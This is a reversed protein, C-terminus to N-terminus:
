NEWLRFGILEHWPALDGGTQSVVLASRSHKGGHFSILGAATRALEQQTPGPVPDKYPTLREAIFGTTFRGSGFTSDALVARLFAINNQGGFLITKALARDLLAIAAERTPAHAIVKATMPDYYVSVEDGSEIGSDIRVGPLQPWQVREVRGPAPAFGRAPDEAYVRAEIAHGNSQLEREAFSLAHGEAVRIQEEVLDLGSVMETVPHEVQLRTNMELFYFSNDKDSYIFEVTGANTYNVARAAQVAADAMARRTEANLAPSPSEEIIKQHRRQISCEREFIHRVNGHTDGFIQFEIHRPQAVFRELLLQDNGFAAAAERKASAIAEALDASKEVLRMGRGGGGATAKVMIPFGIREAEKALLTPDQDDGDYGPVVPVGSAAMIRRARTKDGMQRIVEPTPGIFAIGAASLAKAFGENESLFGYGPHVADISHKRCAEVIKDVNLYSASAEPAGLSITLDAQRVAPTNRDVDSHAVAVEIGLRRCTRLIRLAIEGRNAILIRRFRKNM